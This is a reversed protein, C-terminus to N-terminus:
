IAVINRRVLHTSHRHGLLWIHFVHKKGSAMCKVDKLSSMYRFANEIRMAGSFAAGYMDYIKVYACNFKISLVVFQALVQNIEKWVDKEGKLHWFSKKGKFTQESFFALSSITTTQQMWRRANIKSDFLCGSAFKANKNRRRNEQFACMRISISLCMDPVVSWSLSHPLSSFFISSRDRVDYVCKLFIRLEVCGSIKFNM